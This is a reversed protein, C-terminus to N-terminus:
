SIKAYNYNRIARRRNKYDPLMSEVEQWFGKSHNLHKLHALEHVIVYEILDEPLRMLSLNFTIKKDQNCSGWRSKLNKIRVEDMELKAATAKQRTLPILIRTAESRLFATIQRDITKQVKSDDLGRPVYVHLFSERAEYAAYRRDHVHLKLRLNEMVAQGDKWGLEMSDRHKSIWDKKSRLYGLGAAKPVYWPISLRVGGRRDISLRIYRLGRRRFIKVNGIGEVNIESLAM